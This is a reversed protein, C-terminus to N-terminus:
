RSRSATSMFLVNRRFRQSYRATQYQGVRRDGATVPPGEPFWAYILMSLIQRTQDIILITYGDDLNDRKKSVTDTCAEQTREDSKYYELRVAKGFLGNDPRM